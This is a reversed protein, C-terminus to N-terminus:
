ARSPMSLLTPRVLFSTLMWATPGVPTQCCNAPLFAAAIALTGSHVTHDLSAPECTSTSQASTYKLLMAWAMKTESSVMWFFGCSMWFSTRAVILPMFSMMASGLAAV